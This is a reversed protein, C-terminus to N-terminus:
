ECLGTTSMCSHEVEPVDEGKRNTMAWAVVADIGGDGRPSKNTSFFTPIKSKRSHLMVEEWRRIKDIHEPFNEAIARIDSKNSYICPMCGVRSMGKQYLPNLEIGHKKHIGLVNDLTWDVIPRFTCYTDSLREIRKASRRSVSEEARVGIWSVVEGTISLCFEILPDRKLSKSCFRVTGGPFISEALCMDLFLNGSPATNRVASDIIEQSVGEKKWKTSIVRKRHELDATFDAQVFEVVPGGTKVHLERLYDLTLEHENGTDAFVPRFTIGNHLALLYMATSDKGGSVSLVHQGPPIDSLTYNLM